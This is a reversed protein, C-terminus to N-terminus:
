HLAGRGFKDGGLQRLTLLPVAAGPLRAVQDFGIDLVALAAQAIQMRQEPDRFIDVAHALGVFQQFAAHEVGLFVAGEAAAGIEQPRDAAVDMEEGGAGTSLRMIARNRGPVTRRRTGSLSSKITSLLRMLRAAGSTKLCSGTLKIRIKRSACFFLRAKWGSAIRVTVRDSFSILVPKRSFGSALRRNMSIRVDSLASVTNRRM